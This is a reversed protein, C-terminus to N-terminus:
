GVDVPVAFTMGDCRRGHVGGRFDDHGPGQGGQHDEQYAVHPVHHDRTAEGLAVATAKNDAQAQEAQYSSDATWRKTPRMQTPPILPRCASGFSSEECEGGGDQVEEEEEEDDSAEYSQQPLAQMGNPPPPM